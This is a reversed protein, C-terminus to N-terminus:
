IKKGAYLIVDATGNHFSSENLHTKKKSFHLIDLESFDSFVEELSYLLDPDKPGGSSNNIQEKDYAKLIVIGGSKLSNIIRYHVKERLEPKLHLFILATADYYNEEPIYEELNAVTYNIEVNNEIALIRCKEKGRESWDVADVQWGRKAAYVANRGEGEGPLLLKGAPLNDIQEKFFINPKEGYVFEAKSYRNNWKEKM